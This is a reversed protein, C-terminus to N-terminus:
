VVVKALERFSFILLSLILLLAAKVCVMILVVEGVLRWSILRAPVLYETPNYADFRPLLRIVSHITLMYIRSVNESMYGFSEM